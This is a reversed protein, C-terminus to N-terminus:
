ELRQAPVTAPTREWRLREWTKVLKGFIMKFSPPSMINDWYRSNQLNSQPPQLWIRMISGKIVKVNKDFRISVDLMSLVMKLNNKVCIGHKQFNPFDYKRVRLLIRQMVEAPCPIREWGCRKGYIKKWVLALINKAYRPYIQDNPNCRM